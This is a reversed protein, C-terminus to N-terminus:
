FLIGEDSALEIINKLLKEPKKGNPFDVQGEKKLNNYQIDEWLTSLKQQYM